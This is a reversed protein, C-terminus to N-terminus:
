VVTVTVGMARLADVKPGPTESGTVIEDIEGWGAFTFLREVDFKSHDALVVVDRAARVVAQKYAADSSDPVQLGRDATVGETGVFALDIRLASLAGLASPGLFAQSVARFEGGIVLRPVSGRRALINIVNLANTIVTLQSNPLHAAMEGVTTGADLLVTQGSQCRECAARAIRVKEDKYAGLKAAYPVEFGTGRSVLAGGRVNVLVGQRDLERLDRRITVESVGLLHSLQRVEARGQTELVSLIRLHREGKLQIAAEAGPVDSGM